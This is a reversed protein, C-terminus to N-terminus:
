RWGGVQQLAQFNTVGLVLFLLGMYHLERSFGYLCMLGSAIVSVILAQRMDGGRLQIISASIRGGDLPWVPVLNLLAWLVSPFVYFVVLAFLGVSEQALEKGDLVGPIKYFPGPMMTLVTLRYGAAKVAGLVVVASAIQALPGALAIWMDEKPGIQGRMGGASFSDTPIAMGGFHYLVIKSNLGNRRFALAHGMEHIVISVLLCLLWLILLPLMGISAVGFALDISKVLSFGFVVGALWFSWCIRIPFGLLSFRLDYPSPTPEQLLM